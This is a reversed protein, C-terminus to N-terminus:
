RETDIERWKMNRKAVDKFRLRPRGHNRKGECLQSYLLPRPFCEKNMRYIHGLWRLGKEILMDAMSPLGARKLIDKNTVKDQWAVDQVSRLQRMM